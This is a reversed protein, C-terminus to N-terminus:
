KEEKSIFMFSMLLSHAFTIAGLFAFFLALVLNENSNAWWVLALVSLFSIIWILFASKTYKFFSKWTVENYLFGLQEIISPISHWFIFYIAFGWVLNALKFIIGFIVFLFLEFALQEWKLKKQSALIFLSVLTIIGTIYLGITFTEEPLRYQTIDFVVSLTENTNTSFLLFFILLGYCSHLFYRFTKNQIQFKNQLHQEGFHIGSLLVFILLAFAPIFFFLVANLAVVLIYGLLLILSRNKNKKGDLHSLISIDNSGHLLGVSLILLFSLTLQSEESVYNILWLAFFTLFVAIKDYKM